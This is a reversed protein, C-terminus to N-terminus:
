HDLLRGDHDVSPKWADAADNVAIVLSYFQEDGIIGLEHLQEIYKFTLTAYHEAYASSPATRISSILPEVREALRDSTMPM